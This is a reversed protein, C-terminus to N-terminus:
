LLVQVLFLHHFLHSQFDLNNQRRRRRRKEIQDHLHLSHVLVLQDQHVLHHLTMM